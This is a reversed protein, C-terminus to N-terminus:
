LGEKLEIIKIVEEALENRFDSLHEMGFPPVSLAVYHGGKMKGTIFIYAYFGKSREYKDVVDIDTLPKQIDNELIKVITQAVEAATYEKEVVEKIKITKESM